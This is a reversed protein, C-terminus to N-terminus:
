SGEEPMNHETVPHESILTLVDHEFTLSGTSKSWQGDFILDSCV